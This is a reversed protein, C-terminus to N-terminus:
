VGNLEPDESAAVSLLVNGFPVVGLRLLQLMEQGRIGSRDFPAIEARVRGHTIEPVRRQWFPQEHQVYQGIDALGGAVRLRIPQQPTDAAAAAGQSAVLLIAATAARALRPALGSPRAERSGAPRQRQRLMRGPSRWSRAVATDCSKRAHVVYRAIRNGM